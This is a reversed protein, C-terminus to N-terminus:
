RAGATTGDGAPRGAQDSATAVRRVPRTRAVHAAGVAALAVAGFGLLLPTGDRGARRRTLIAHGFGLAILLAALFAHLIRWTPARM